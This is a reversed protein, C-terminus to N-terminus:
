MNRSLFSIKLDEEDATVTTMSPAAKGIDESEVHFERSLDIGVLVRRCPLM